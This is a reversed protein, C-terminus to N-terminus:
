PWILNQDSRVSRARSSCAPKLDARNSRTPRIGASAFDVIPTADTLFPPPLPTTGGAGQAEQVLVYGGAPISGSLPTLLNTATGFNGASSGYQLSWGELSVTTTGRNFLEIFDHTLTAGSNGGGGYVQSIVVNPSAAFSTPVVVAAVAALAALVTLRRLM